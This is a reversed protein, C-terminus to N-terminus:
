VVGGASCRSAWRAAERNLAMALQHSAVTTGDMSFDTLMGARVARLELAKQTARELWYTAAWGTASPAVGDPDAVACQDVINGVETPTLAPTGATDAWLTVFAIADTRATMGTSQARSGWIPLCAPLSRPLTGVTRM